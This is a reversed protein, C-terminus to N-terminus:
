GLDAGREWRQDGYSASFGMPMSGLTGGALEGGDEAPEDTSAEVSLLELGLFRITLRVPSAM